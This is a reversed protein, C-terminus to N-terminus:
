GRLAALQDGYGAADIDVEIFTPGEHAFAGAVAPAHDDHAQVPWSQCGLARAIGVFDFMNNVVM